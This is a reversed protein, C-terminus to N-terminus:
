NGESFGYIKHKENQISARGNMYLIRGITFVSFVQGTAWFNHKMM